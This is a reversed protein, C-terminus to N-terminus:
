SMMNEIVAAADQVSNTQAARRKLKSVSNRDPGRGKRAMGKGAKIGKPVTKKVAGAAKEGKKIREKLAANETRLSALELAGKILRSDVINPVEDDTFGLTKITDVSARLKDDGWDEIDEKLKAGEAQMFEQRQQQMYADYQQAAHQRAGRLQNIQTEIERQQMVFQAPDDTQMQLLKPDRLRAAITNEVLMFQNALVNANQEFTQVRAAQAAEFTRRETAIATKDRDYDAKLKYGAVLDALTVTQEQGAAKTTHTLTSLFEDLDMELAEAFGELTTIADSDQEDNDAQDDDGAKGTTGDEDGEEDSTDGADDTDQEDASDQDDAQNRKRKRDPQDDLNQDDGGRQRDGINAEGEDGDVQDVYNPDRGDDDLLGAIANTAQIASMCQSPAVQGADAMKQQLPNFAM